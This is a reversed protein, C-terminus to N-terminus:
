WLDSALARDGGHRIRNRSQALPGPPARLRRSARLARQRAHSLRGLRIVRRTRRGVLLNRQPDFVFFDDEVSSLHVLGSMGLPSVDVFFGFNRVDIVLASYSELRGSKIQQRLYAFLKVDKSDREADASNRETESLHQAM